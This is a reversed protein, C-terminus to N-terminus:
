LGLELRQQLDAILPKFHHELRLIESYAGEAVRRAGYTEYYPTGDIRDEVRPRAPVPYVTESRFAERGLQQLAREVEFRLEEYAAAADLKRDLERDDLHLTLPAAVPRADPAAELLFDYHAIPHGLRRGASRAAADAVFFCLDHVPNIGEVADSVVQHVNGTVLDEALQLTLEAVADVDRSLIIEYARRDTLRGFVSGPRAGAEQLVRGTAQIRSPGGKGSGDTLVFVTPRVRHLWAHLRMEHGPHGVILATPEAGFPKEVSPASSHRNDSATTM